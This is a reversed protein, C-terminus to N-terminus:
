SKPYNSLAMDASTRKILTRPSRPQINVSKLIQCMYSSMRKILDSMVYCQILMIKLLGLYVLWDAIYMYNTLVFRLIISAIFNKFTKADNVKYCRPYYEDINITITNVLRLLFGYDSIIDKM